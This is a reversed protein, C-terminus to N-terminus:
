ISINKVYKTAIMLMLARDTRAEEFNDKLIQIIQSNKLQISLIELTQFSAMEMSEVNLLYFLISLDRVAIEEGHLVISSFANELTSIMGKCNEFSYTLGLLKYIEDMRTLQNELEDLTGMIAFKLDSLCVYEVVESLREILHSKGCYIRNLNEFFLPQLIEPIIETSALWAKQSDGMVKKKSFLEIVGQGNLVRASFSRTSKWPVDETTFCM